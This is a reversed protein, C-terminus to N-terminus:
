EDMASSRHKDSGADDGALAAAVDHEATRRASTLRVEVVLGNRNETLLHGLYRTGKREGRRRTPASRQVWRWVRVHDVAGELDRYSWSYRMALSRVFHNVGRSTGGESCCQDSKALSIM